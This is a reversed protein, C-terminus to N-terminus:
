LHHSDKSSGNPTSVLQHHNQLRYMNPYKLFVDSLSIGDKTPLYDVFMEQQHYPNSISLTEERTTGLSVNGFNIFFPLPSKSIELKNPPVQVSHSLSSKDLLSERKAFSINYKVQNQENKNM